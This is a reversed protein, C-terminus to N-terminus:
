LARHGPPTADEGLAVPRAQLDSHRLLGTILGAPGGVCTWADDWLMSVLWSRDAPFLLNPLVGKWFAGADPQRWRAAQRPGAEVLLYEWGAYLTVTPAAPWVLDDAGTRLYGLWWPLGTGYEALVALMARDHAEQRAGTDPLV